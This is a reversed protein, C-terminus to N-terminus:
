FPLTDDDIEELTAQRYQPQPQAQPQERQTTAGVNQTQPTKERKELFEVNNCTVITSVWEKGKKDVNKKTELHGEVFCLSGKSLYKNCNEALTRFTAIHFFDVDRQGEANNYPRQVALDFTCVPIGSPTEGLLPNRTLRGTFFVKNM